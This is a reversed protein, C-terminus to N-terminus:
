SANGELETKLSLFQLLDKLTIVGLLGTEDVVM